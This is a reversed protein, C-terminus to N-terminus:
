EAVSVTDAATSPPLRSLLIWVCREAGNNNNAQEKQKATMAESNERELISHISPSAPQRQM